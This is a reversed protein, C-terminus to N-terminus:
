CSRYRRASGSASAKEEDGKGVEEERYGPFMMPRMLFFVAMLPVSPPTLYTQSTHETSIVAVTLSERRLLLTCPLTKDDVDGCGRECMRTPGCGTHLIHRSRGRRVM